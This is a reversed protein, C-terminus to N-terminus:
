TSSDKVVGLTHQMVDAITVVGIFRGDSDVVLLIYTKERLIKDILEFIAVDGRVTSVQESIVDKVTVRKKTDQIDTIDDLALMGKISQKKGIVPFYRHGSKELENLLVPGLVASPEVTIVRKKLTMIDRVVKKESSLVTELRQRQVPSLVTSPLRRLQHSFEAFSAPAILPVRSPVGIVKWLLSLSDTAKLIVSLSAIFYRDAVGKVLTLRALGVSFLAAVTVAVGALWPTILYTVLLVQLTYLLVQLSGIFVRVQPLLDYLQKQLKIRPDSSHSFRNRAAVESIDYRDLQLAALLVLALQNAVVLAWILVEM